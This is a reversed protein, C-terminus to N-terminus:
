TPRQARRLGYKELVQDWKGQARLLLEAVERVAGRGGPQRTVYRACAKIEPRANAVAVPLGVRLLIPGDTLDDGVYCINEEAVGSDRVIEEFPGLKALHNQYLYAVRLMGAREIVAPSERGSIWGVRIGAFEQVWRMAMGDQSDFGKNEVVGGRGDPSYYLLGDTLVGDVDMLLLRIRKARRLLDASLKKRM